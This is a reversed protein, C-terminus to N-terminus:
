INSNTIGFIVMLYLIGNDINYLFNNLHTSNYIKCSIRQILIPCPPLLYIPSLVLNDINM